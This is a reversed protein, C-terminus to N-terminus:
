QKAEFAEAYVATDHSTSGFNGTVEKGTLARFKNLGKCAEIWNTRSLQTKYKALAAAKIAMTGEDFYHIYTPNVIPSWVEGYWLTTSSGKMAREVLRTTKKHTPHAEHISTTIVLSPNKLTIINKIIQVNTDSEELSPTDLNLFEASAGIVACGDRGEEQRIRIKEDDSLDSSVGKPSNTLFYVIVANNEKVLDQLLAAASISEDDPHPSFFLVTDNKPLSMGKLNACIQM